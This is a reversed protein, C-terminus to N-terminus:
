RQAKLLEDIKAEPYSLLRGLKRAIQEREAGSYKGAKVLDAKQQKLALYENKISGQYIVLVQKGETATAPFLDTVLFDNERYLQVKNRQAIREAADVLADLDQAPMAASLAMKKIGLSVVESFSDIGGLRYSRQDIKPTEAAVREQAAYASCATALLVACLASRITHSSL